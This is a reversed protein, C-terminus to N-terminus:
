DWYVEGYRTPTRGEARDIYEEWYGGSAPISVGQWGVPYGSDAAFGLLERLIAQDERSVYCAYDHTCGAQYEAKSTAKCDCVLRSKPADIKLWGWATGKGGTVSWDLGSRQKLANKIRKTVETRENM